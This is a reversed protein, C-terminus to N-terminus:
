MYGFLYQRLSLRFINDKIGRQLLAYSAPMDGDLFVEVRVIGPLIDLTEITQEDVSFRKDETLDARYITNQVIINIVVLGIILVVFQVIDTTKRSKM